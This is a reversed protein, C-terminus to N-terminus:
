RQEGGAVSMPEGWKGLPSGSGRTKKGGSEADIIVGVHEAERGRNDLRGNVLDM